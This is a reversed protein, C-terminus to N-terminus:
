GSAASRTRLRVKCKLGAPLVLDPNPLELRVGFTASAADVVRDVVTVKALYRGGVPEEPFVDAEEGVELTGLYSVPAFVEVRLPDIQALKMIQLPEAFAGPSLFREVVVGDLPSRIVRLDVAAQARALEMEALFKNEVAERHETQAVRYVTEAEDVENTSVLSDRALTQMREHERTSQVLRAKANEVRADSEARAKALMLAAREVSSELTAVVQGQKVMDGREVTVTEIVGEVPTALTVVEKPEILCDLDETAAADGAGLALLLAVAARVGSYTV